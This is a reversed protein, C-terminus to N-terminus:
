RHHNGRLPTFILHKPRSFIAQLLRGLYLLDTFSSVSPQRDVDISHICCSLDLRRDESIDRWKRVFPGGLGGAALRRDPTVLEADSAPESQTVLTVVARGLLIRPGPANDIATTKERKLYWGRRSGSGTLSGQCESGSQVEHDPQSLTGGPRRLSLGPRGCQCAGDRQWHRVLPWQCTWGHCAGPVPRSHSEFTM